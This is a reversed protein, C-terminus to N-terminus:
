QSLPIQTLDGTLRISSTRYTQGSPNLDISSLIMRLPVFHNASGTLAAHVLTRIVIQIVLTGLSNVLYSSPVVGTLRLMRSLQQLFKTAGGKYSYEQLYHQTTTTSTHALREISPNQVMDSSRGPEIASTSKEGTPTRVVM